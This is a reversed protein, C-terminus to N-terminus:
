RVVTRPETRGAIADGLEGLAEGYVGVQAALFTAGVQALAAHAQAEAVCLALNEPTAWTSGKRRKAVDLFEEAERYHEAPTV